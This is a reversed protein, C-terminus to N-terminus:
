FPEQRRQGEQLEPSFPSRGLSLFCLERTKDHSTFIFTIKEVPWVGEIFLRRLFHPAVSSALTAKAHKWEYIRYTSATLFGNLRM